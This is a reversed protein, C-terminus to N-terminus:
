KNTKNEKKLEFGNKNMEQIYSEESQNIIALKQYKRKGNENKARISKRSNQSRRRSQGYESGSRFLVIAFVRRRYCDIPRTHALFM